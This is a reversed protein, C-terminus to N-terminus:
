EDRDGGQEDIDQSGSDVETEQTDDSTTSTTDLAGEAGEEELEQLIHILTGLTYGKRWLYYLVLVVLIIVLPGIRMVFYYLPDTGLAWGVQQGNTFSVWSWSPHHGLIGGDGNYLSVNIGRVVGKNDLLISGNLPTPPLYLEVSQNDAKDTFELQLAGFQVLSKNVTSKSAELRYQNGDPEVCVDILCVKKLGILDNVFGEILMLSEEELWHIKPIMAVPSTADVVFEKTQRVSMCAIPKFQAAKGTMEKCRTAEASLVYEGDTLGDRHIKLRYPEDRALAQRGTPGALDVSLVCDQDTIVKINVVSGNIELIVELSPRPIQSMRWNWAEESTGRLDYQIYGSRNELFHQLSPAARPLVALALLGILIIFVWPLAGKFIGM